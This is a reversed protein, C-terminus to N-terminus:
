SKGKKSSSNILNHVIHAAKVQKSQDNEILDAIKSIYEKIIAKDHEASNAQEASEAHYINKYKKANAM